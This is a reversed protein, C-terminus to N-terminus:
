KSVMLQSEYKKWDVEGRIGHTSTIVGVRLMDESMYNRMETCMNHIPMQCTCESVFGM